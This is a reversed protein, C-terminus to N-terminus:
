SHSPPLIRLRMADEIVATGAAAGHLEDVRGADAAARANWWRVLDRPLPTWAESEALFDLVDRYHAECEERGIYGARPDPHTLMCAMGNGSRIRELKALWTKSDTHGLLGFLTHDQPMTM